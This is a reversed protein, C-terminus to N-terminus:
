GSQKTEDFSKKLKVRTPTVELLDETSFFLDTDTQSTNVKFSRIEGTLIDRVPYDVTGLSKGDRDVVEAGYKVELSEGEDLAIKLKVTTTTAEAVEAPSFFLAADAIDSSVTFKAIETTYTDRIVRDVTGLKKGNKDIVEAGHEIEMM